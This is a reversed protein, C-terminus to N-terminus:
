PAHGARPLLGGDPAARARQLTKCAGGRPPRRRRHHLRQRQGGRAGRESAARYAYRYISRVTYRYTYRYTYHIQLPLHLPPHFLHRSFRLALYPTPPGRVALYSPQMIDGIVPVIGGDRVLEAWHRSQIGPTGHKHEPEARKSQECEWRKAGDVVDYTVVKARPNYQRMTKAYFVASGGCWTGIEVLLAPKLEWLLRHLTAADTVSQQTDVGFWSVGTGAPIVPGAIGNGGLGLEFAFALEQLSVGPNAGFPRPVVRRKPFRWATPSDAMGQLLARARGVDPEARWQAAAASTDNDRFVLEGVTTAHVRAAQREFYNPM